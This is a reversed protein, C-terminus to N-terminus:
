APYPNWKPRGFGAGHKLGVSSIPRWLEYVGNGIRSGNDNTNGGCTQFTKGDHPDIVIEVHGIRGLDNHWYFVWDGLKPVSHFQGRNKFFDASTPTYASHPVLHGGGSAWATWWAFINCWEANQLGFLQGFVTANNVGERYGDQSKAFRVAAEATGPHNLKPVPQLPLFSSM